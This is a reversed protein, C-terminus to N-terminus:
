FDLRKKINVTYKLRYYGDYAIEEKKVIDEPQIILQTTTHSDFDSWARTWGFFEEGNLYKDIQDSEVYIIIGNM